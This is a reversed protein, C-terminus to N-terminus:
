RINNSPIPLLIVTNMCGPPLIPPPLNTGELIETQKRIAKPWFLFFPRCWVEDCSIIEGDKKIKFDEAGDWATLVEFRLDDEECFYLSGISEFKHPDTIYSGSEKLKKRLGEVEEFSRDGLIKRCCDTFDRQYYSVEEFFADVLGKNDEKGQGSDKRSRRRRDDSKQGGIETGQGRIRKKLWSFM